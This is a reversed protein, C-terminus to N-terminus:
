LSGPYQSAPLVCVTLHVVSPMTFTFVILKHRLAYTLQRFYTPVESLAPKPKFCPPVATYGDKATIASSTKIKSLPIITSVRLRHRMIISVSSSIYSIPHHSFRLFLNHIRSKSFEASLINRFDQHTFDIM